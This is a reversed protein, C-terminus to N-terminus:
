LMINLRYNNACRLAYVGTFQLDNNMLNYNESLTENIAIDPKTGINLHQNEYGAFYTKQIHM